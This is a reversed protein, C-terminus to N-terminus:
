LAFTRLIPFFIPCFCVIKPKILQGLDKVLENSQGGCYYQQKVSIRIFMLAILGQFHGPEGFINGATFNSQM